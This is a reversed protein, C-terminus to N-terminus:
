LDEPRVTGSLMFATQSHSCSFAMSWLDLTFIMSSIYLAYLFVPTNFLVGTENANENAFSHLLHYYFYFFRVFRVCLFIWSFM